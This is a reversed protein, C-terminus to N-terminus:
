LMFPKLSTSSSRPKMEAATHVPCVLMYGTTPCHDPRPFSVRLARGDKATLTTLTPASRLM